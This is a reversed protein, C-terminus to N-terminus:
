VGAKVRALTKAWLADFEAKSIDGDQLMRELALKTRRGMEPNLPKIKPKPKPREWHTAIMHSTKKIM